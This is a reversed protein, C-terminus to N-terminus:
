FNIQIGLTYSSLSPYGISYNEPDFKKLKDFSFLNAGRVFLKTKFVMPPLDYYIEINRLKLYSGNELWLDSVRFNNSNDQTTLRPADARDTTAPTWRTRHELYWISINTNNQLPFFINRSNTYISRNAVGQFLAYFGLGKYNLHIDLGYYIEPIHGYDSIKIVDLEDIVQDGNQDNYKIDGPRVESFVQLPSGEIDTESSFFGIAELGYRATLRNGKQSLYDYPLFGENNEIVKARAFAFNGSIKYEFDNQKDQWTLKTELGKTKIIGDSQQGVDLGLVGSIVNSGTVLINTRNEYFLDTNFNLKNNFLSLDFGFNTKTATEYNLNLAPLVGAQSSGYSSITNTFYSTGGGRYYSRWLDHSFLDSGSIGYSGRIKLSTNEDNGFFPENSIIWAASIAPYLKFRDGEPLKASGAYNLVADVLYKNNIALSGFAKYAQRKETNNRGQTFYRNQEYILSTSLRYLSSSKNYSLRGEINNNIFQATINDFYDMPTDESFSTKSTEVNGNVIQASIVEYLYNRRGGEHLMSHFDSSIATEATLGPLLASLDQRLRSDFILAQDIKKNFGSYNVMAVPNRAYFTNSAFIKNEGSYVPFAASPIDYVSNNIFGDGNGPERKQNLHTLLGVSLLTSNTVNVDLNGRINLQLNNLVHDNRLVNELGKYYGGSNNYSVSTFYKTRESGGRASFDLLHSTPRDNFVENAWNVDPYAYPYDGSEFAAIEAASYRESLGDNVLAENLAKAYAPAGAMETQRFPSYQNNNYRVTIEPKGINGRRTTVAIVGNAGRVGYLAAAVADKLVTVSEIEELSFYDLDREFGDVLILPAHNGFTSRGRILMGPSGFVDGPQMVILGPLQGYLAKKVNVESSKLLEDRNITAVSETLQKDTTQLGHGLKIVQNCENIVLNFINDKIRISGAYEQEGFFRYFLNVVNESISSISVHGTSDSIGALNICAETSFFEVGALVNGNRDSVKGTIGKQANTAYFTILLIIFIYIIRKMSNM